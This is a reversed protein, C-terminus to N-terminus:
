RGSRQRSRGTGAAALGIHRSAPWFTFRYDATTSGARLFRTLEHNLAMGSLHAGVVALEIEDPSAMAPFNPAPPLAMGTAGIRVNAGTHLRSGIAALLGDQGRPAILTVGSPFGDGRFRGPIALACLDLLNVFNTCTGLESNPGVPDVELDAITQPRPFTPVVLM